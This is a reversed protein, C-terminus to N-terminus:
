RVTTWRATLATTTGTRSLARLRRRGRERRRRGPGPQRRGSLQRLRDGVGDGDGDAQDGNADDPCNDCADGLLDGDPDEQGPNGDLPCNDCADISGDTDGDGLGSLGTNPHVDASMTAPVGLTDVVRVDDIWWGDDGPAPNIFLLDEWSEVDQVKISTSLFRVLLRRGRFRGLDFSSEVWTGTGTAGALGPGESASGVNGADFPDDTDGLHVFNREPFCTSSPGLRREPDAPDFFDDETSGDDVSDFMCNTFNEAAVADYVNRYPEIKIWDGVAQGAADALRVQVIARDTSTGPQAGVEESQLHIQHKFSLVPAAPVCDEGAPCDGPLACGVTRTVSCVRDWGVNVPLVSGAAELTALPTTNEDPEPGYIGMYLSRTGTYSRGGDPSGAGNVQWFYADAQAPSAGLFCDTTFDYSNSEIWDPDTYQCRYGDSAALSNRGFDLNMTTFSGLGSGSEFDEGFSEPASGGSVDLDLDLVLTAPYHAVVPDSVIEVDFLAALEDLEGLGALTRDM